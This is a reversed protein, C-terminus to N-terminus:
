AFRGLRRAQARMNMRWRYDSPTSPFFLLGQTTHFAMHGRRHEIGTVDLGAEDCLRLCDRKHKNM